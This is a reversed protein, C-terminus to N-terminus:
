PRSGAASPASRGLLETLTASARSDAISADERGSAAVQALAAAVAHADGTQARALGQDVQPVFLEAGYDSTIVSRVGFQAADIVTSSSHTLHADSYMLLAPLPLDSPVDFECAAGRLLERIEARRALMVPHLRVWFQFQAAAYQMLAVLRDIQQVRTLGYQLTVLVVPKDGARARLSRAAAVAAEVGEWASTERWVHLWPNGGVIAHHASGASWRSIVRAEWPSWVWFSDPVLEHRGSAPPPLAAYAPHWEGQVGHQLDTVPVSHERCALVFAMGELSYYSVVFAHKPRTRALLRYYMDAVARVRSGDSVIRSAQLEAIGYGRAAMWRALDERGPLRAYRAAARARWHGLINARDVRLQVFRSVTLRPRHYTHLPTWLASSCGLSAAAKILPDCFREIWGPGLKSFSLGDSLLVIDRAVDEADNHGRDAVRARLCDCAGRLARRAFAGRAGASQASGDETAYHRTWEARFWRLRVLPWVSVGAVQWQQTPFEAEAQSLASMLHSSLPAAGALIPGPPPTVLRDGTRERSVGIM